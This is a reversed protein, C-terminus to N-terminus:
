PVHAHLYLKQMGYRKFGAICPRKSEGQSPLLKANGGQIILHTVLYIFKDNDAASPFAELLQRALVDALKKTRSYGGFNQDITFKGTM